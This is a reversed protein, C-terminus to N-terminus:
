LITAHRVVEAEFLVILQQLLVCRLAHVPGDKSPLDFLIIWDDRCDDLCCKVCHRRNSFPLRECLDQKLNGFLTLQLLQRIPIDIHPLNASLHLLEAVEHLSM